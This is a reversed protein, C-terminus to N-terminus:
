SVAWSVAERPHLAPADFRIVAELEIIVPALLATLEEAKGAIGAREIEGCLEGLRSAGISLAAGKLQHAVNVAAPGEGNSLAQELKSRSLAATERFSQLVEAITARDDGVLATLIALDVVPARDSAAAAAADIGAVSGLPASRLWPEIAAKLQALRVPKSLYGDMGCEICKLEEDRLANATFAIIPTRKGAPEERRIAGALEYGDMRPMHLDTIVMAFDGSRWCELAECGDVAVDAVFGLLALQKLVVVRNTHNDEAVLILRRQLRAEHRTQPAVFTVQAPTESAPMEHSRGAALSLARLLTRFFLSDADITVLDIAELQPVRHKGWGLVVFRNSAEGPCPVIKRLDAMSPLDVGPLILWISMGAPQTTGIAEILDSFREVNVGAARLSTDLDQALGLHNGVMRCHLGELVMPAESDDQESAGVAFPLRVTFTSGVGAASRVSIAGDMLRVLMDSIALGLGTGGFRRTTSADAQMFPNFLRPLAQADIGVGNDSVILDLTVTQASQEVLVARVSVDGGQKRGGSFKIANGTLNVLVQRLRSQDGVVVRPLAPDVFVTMRVGQKVALHHLMGCVNEVTEALQMPENSVELKGAEIKSFDLIDEIIQLLSFASDRILDIMEVQHGKLSTQHLVEIMGIVGNMPTRIEHSMTALFASKAHNAEEAQVRALTLEVTREAVGAELKANMEKLAHIDTGTGIWKLVQGDTNLLPVARMLWWHYEGDAGRQRAEMSYTTKTRVADSWTDRARQKDDPHFTALWRDEKSDELALGTFEAWRGNTYTVAGDPRSVWVIQPMLDAMTRFGAESERLAIEAQKRETINRTSAVVFEISGDSALAPSFVFEYFAVVGAANVYRDEDSITEKTDFVLAVQQQLMEAMRRPYGLDKFNRGVAAPLAIGWFDLLPQNAFLLRGDRDFIQIFDPISSLATNLKRERRETRLSLAAMADAALRRETVDVHMVVAGRSSSDALPSATVMFWRRQVPSHCAYEMSFSESRGSIVARVGAAVQKADDADENSALDCINLYNLGVAHGPAHMASAGSFRQWATNTLVIGGRADLLAIHAPLANVIAAQRAIESQRLHGQARRLLTTRGRRDTVSDVEGKLLHELRQDAAHLHEILAAIEEDSDQPPATLEM